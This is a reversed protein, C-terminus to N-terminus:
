ATPGNIQSVIRDADAAAVMLLNRRGFERIRVVGLAGREIESLLLRPSVGLRAAPVALRVWAEGVHGPHMLTTQLM